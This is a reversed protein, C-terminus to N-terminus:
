SSLNLNTHTLEASIFVLVAYFHNTRGLRSFTRPQLQFVNAYICAM